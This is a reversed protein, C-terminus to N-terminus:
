PKYTIYRYNKPILPLASWARPQFLQRRRRAVHLPRDVKMSRVHLGHRITQTEIHYTAIYTITSIIVSISTIIFINFINCVLSYTIISIINMKWENAASLPTRTSDQLTIIQLVLSLVLFLLLIYYYCYYCFYSYHYYCSYCYYYIMYIYVYMCVDTCVYICVYM